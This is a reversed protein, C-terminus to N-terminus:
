ATSYEVSVAYSGASTATQIGSLRDIEQLTVDRPRAIPVQTAMTARDIKFLQGPYFIVDQYGIPPSLMKVQFAAGALKHYNESYDPVQNKPIILQLGNGPPYRWEGGSTLTEDLGRFYRPGAYDGAITYTFVPDRTRQLPGGLKVDDSFGTVGRGGHGSFIGPNNLREQLQAWSTFLGSQLDQTRDATSLPPLMIGLVILAAM